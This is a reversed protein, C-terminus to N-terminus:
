RYPLRPLRAGDHHLPRGARALVRRHRWDPDPDLRPARALLGGEGAMGPPRPRLPVTRPPRGAVAAPGFPLAELLRQPYPVEARLPPRGRPLAGVAFGGGGRVRAHGM